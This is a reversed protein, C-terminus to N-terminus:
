DESSDSPTVEKKELDPPFLVIEVRRNLQRNEKSNNPRLPRHEGYGVAGLRDPNLGQQNTLYQVVSVARAASLHWNTPFRSDSLVPVTDTHGQVMIPRNPYKELVESIKELTQRAQERLKHEGLRFLIRSKLDIVVNKGERRTTAEKIESLDQELQRNQQELEAVRQKRERKLSEIKERLSAITDENDQITQRATELENSLSSLRDTKESLQEKLKKNEKKLTDRRDELNTIQQELQDIDTERQGLKRQLQENADRLKELESKQEELQKQYACGGLLLFSCTLVLIMKLYKSFRLNTLM